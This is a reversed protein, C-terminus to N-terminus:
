IMMIITETRTSVLAIKDHWKDLNRWMYEHILLKPIEIDPLKSKIIKSENTYKRNGICVVRTNRINPKQKYFNRIVNKSFM